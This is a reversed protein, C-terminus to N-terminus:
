EILGTEPSFLRIGRSKLNEKLGKCRDIYGEPLITPGKFYPEVTVLKLSDDEKVVQYIRSGTTGRNDVNSYYTLECGSTMLGQVKLDKMKDFGHKKVDEGTIPWGKAKIAMRIAEVLVVEPKWGLSVKFFEREAPNPVKEALRENIFKVMPIKAEDEKYWLPTDICYYYGVSLDGGYRMVGDATTMSTGHFPVELGVRKVDKLIVALPAPLHGVIIVDPKKAKIRMLESAADTPMMPVGEDAVNLCGRAEAYPKAPLISRGMPNDAYLWAIRLPDKKLDRGEKKKKEM